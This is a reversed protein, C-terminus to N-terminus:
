DRRSLLDRFWCSSMIVYARDLRELADQMSSPLEGAVALEELVDMLVIPPIDPTSLSAIYDAYDTLRQQSDLAGDMRLDNCLELESCRIQFNEHLRSKDIQRIQEQSLDFRRLDFFHYALWLRSLDPEVNETIARNLIREVCRTENTEAGRDPFHYYAYGLAYLADNYGSEVLEHLEAIAGAIIERRQARDSTDCQADIQDWLEGLREEPNDM